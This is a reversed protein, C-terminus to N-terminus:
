RQAERRRRSAKSGFLGLQVLRLTMVQESVGYRAALAAIRPESEVDLSGVAVERRLWAAPMLLELAFQTAEWDEAAQRAKDTM